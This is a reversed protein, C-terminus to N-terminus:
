DGKESSAGETNEVKTEPESVARAEGGDETNVVSGTEMKQLQKLANRHRGAHFKHQKSVAMSWKSIEEHDLRGSLGEAFEALEDNYKIAAEHYSVDKPM